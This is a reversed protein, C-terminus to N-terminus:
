GREVRPRGGQCARWSQHFRCGAAGTARRYCGGYLGEGRAGYSCDTGHLLAREWALFRPMEHQPLGILDLFITVPFPFAFDAMETGWQERAQALAARVPDGWMWGPHLSNVRINDPGVEAALKRTANYLMAKSACYGGEDELPVMKVGMTSIMMVAGGGQEKMHPLVARTMKITGIVNTEFQKQWHDFDGARITEGMPGYYYANNILADIRGFRAQVAAALRECQPQDTIDNICKMVEAKAGSERIRREADDLKEQTRATVVVAAAGEIAAHLALKVGLGPGIGSVIVVKGQLLM